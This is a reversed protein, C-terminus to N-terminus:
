SLDFHIPISNWTASSISLYTGATDTAIRVISVPSSINYSVQNSSPIGEKRFKIDGNALYGIVSIFPRKTYNILLVGSEPTNFTHCFDNTNYNSTGGGTYLDFGVNGIPNCYGNTGLNRANWRFVIGNDSSFIKRNVGDVGRYQEKIERNVGGVGRYQKKVERNVGNIGRYISM